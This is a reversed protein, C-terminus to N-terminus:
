PLNLTEALQSKLNHQCSSFGIATQITPFTFHITHKPSHGATIHFISEASSMFCAFGAAASGSFGFCLEQAAAVFLDLRRNSKWNLLRLLMYHNEVCEWGLFYGLAPSGSSSLNRQCGCGHRSSSSFWVRQPSTAAWRVPPRCTRLSEHSRLSLTIFRVGGLPKHTLAAVRGCAAERVERLTIDGRPRATSGPEERRERKKGRCNKKLM